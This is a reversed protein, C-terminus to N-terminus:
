ARDAPSPGRTRAAAGAGRAAATVRARSANGGVVASPIAVSAARSVGASRVAGASKGPVVGAAGVGGGGAGTHAPGEEAGRGVGEPQDDNTDDEEPHEDARAAEVAAATHSDDGSGGVGLGDVGTHGLDGVLGDGPVGGSLALGSRSWSGGTANVLVFWSHTREILTGKKKREKLPSWAIFFRFLVL